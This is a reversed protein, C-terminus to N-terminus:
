TLLVFAKSNYYNQIYYNKKHIDNLFIIESPHIHILIYM